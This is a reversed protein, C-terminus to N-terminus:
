HLHGGQNLGLAWVVEANPVPKRAHPPRQGAEGSTRQDEKPWRNAWPQSASEGHWPDQLSGACFM